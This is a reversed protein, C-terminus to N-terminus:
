EVGARPRCDSGTNVEQESFTHSWFSFLDLSLLLFM